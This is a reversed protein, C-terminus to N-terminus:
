TPGLVENVHFYAITRSGGTVVVVSGVQIRYAGSNDVVLWGASAPSRWATRDDVRLVFSALGDKVPHPPVFATAALDQDAPTPPPGSSRGGQEMTLWIIEGRFPLDGRFSM